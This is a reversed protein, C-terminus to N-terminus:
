EGLVASVVAFLEANKLNDEGEIETYDDREYEFVDGSFNPNKLIENDCAAKVAEFKDQSVEYAIKITTM